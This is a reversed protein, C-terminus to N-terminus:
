ARSFVETTRLQLHDREGRVLKVCVQAWVGHSRNVSKEKGCFGSTDPFAAVDGRSFLALM